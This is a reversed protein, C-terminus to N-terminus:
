NVREESVEYVCVVTLFSGADHLTEEGADERGRCRIDPHRLPGSDSCLNM